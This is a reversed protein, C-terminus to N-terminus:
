AALALEENASIQAEPNVLRFARGAAKIEAAGTSVL